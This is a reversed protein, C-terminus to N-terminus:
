STWRMPLLPHRPAVRSLHHGDRRRSPHGAMADAIESWIETYPRGAASPQKAGLLESYGHNYLFVLEPGWAVFMPFKSSPMFGVVTCQSGTRRNAWPSTSADVARRVAGSQGGGALCPPFPSLRFSLEVRGCIGADEM